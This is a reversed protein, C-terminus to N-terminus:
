WLHFLKRLFNNLEGSCLNNKALSSTVMCYLIVKMTLYQCNIKDIIPLWTLLTLTVIIIKTQNSLHNHFYNKKFTRLFPLRVSITKLFTYHYTLQPQKCM